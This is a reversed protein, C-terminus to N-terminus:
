SRLIPVRGFAISGNDRVLIFHLDPLAGVVTEPVADIEADSQARTASYSPSTGPAQMQGM